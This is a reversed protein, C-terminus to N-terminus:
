FQLRTTTKNDHKLDCSEEKTRTAGFMFIFVQLSSSLTMKSHEAKSATGEGFTEQDRGGSKVPSIASFVDDRLPDSLAVAVRVRDAQKGTSRVTSHRTSCGRNSSGSLLSIVSGAQPIDPSILCRSM